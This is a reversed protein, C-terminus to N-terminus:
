GVRDFIAEMREVSCLISSEIKEKSCVTPEFKNAKINKAIENMISQTAWIILISKMPLLKLTTGNFGYKRLNKEIKRYSVKSLIKGIKNVNFVQLYLNQSCISIDVSSLKSQNEVVLNYFETADAVINRSLDIYFQKWEVAPNEKEETLFYGTVLVTSRQFFYLFGFAILCLIFFYMSRIGGDRHKRM